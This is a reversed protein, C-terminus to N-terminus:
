QRYGKICFYVKDSTDLAMGHKINKIDINHAQPDQKKNNYQFNEVYVVNTYTYFVYHITFTLKYFPFCVKFSYHPGEHEEFVYM